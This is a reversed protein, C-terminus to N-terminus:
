NTLGGCAWVSVAIRPCAVICAISEATRLILYKATVRMAAKQVARGDELESARSLSVQLGSPDPGSIFAHANSRILEASLASFLVRADRILPAAGSVLYWIRESFALHNSDRSASHM